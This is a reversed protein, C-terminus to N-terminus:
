QKQFEPLSLIYGVAAEVKNGPASWFASVALERHSPPVDGNLLLLLFYDIVKEPTDLGWRRRFSEPSWELRAEDADAPNAARNLFKLRELLGTTHMWDAALESEGTPDVFDFLEMGALLLDGAATTFQANTPRGELARIASTVVEFPTKVKARYLDLSLFEDSHLITRIVERQDGDTRKWMDICAQLLDPEQYELATIRGDSNADLREFVHLPRGDPLVRSIPEEWEARELAGNGDRDVADFAAQLAAPMPRTKALVSLDDTVFLQILKTSIFKATDRFTMLKDLFRDFETLAAGVTRSSENAPIALEASVPLPNGLSDTGGYRRVFLEKRSWDHAETRIVFAWTYLGDEWLQTAPFQFPPPERRNLPVPTFQPQSQFNIDGPPFGARAVWDVTWGTFVKALEEVDRQTYANDVGTSFLELIERAFNENPARVTNEFGNLYILMAVSKSCAELLDRFRGFTHRRYLAYERKEMDAAVAMQDAGRGYKWRGVHRHDLFEVLTLAGDARKERAYEEWTIASRHLSRFVAWEVETLLDDAPGVDAARFIEESAEVVPGGRPPEEFFNEALAGVQTHFHNNWFQAVVHLLQWRSEVAHVILAAKLKAKQVDMNGRARFGIDLSEVRAHLDPEHLAPDYPYPVHDIQEDIYRLLDERTQIRAYLDETPGFTIRNLVHAILPFDDPCYPSSDCGMASALPDGGCEFPGPAPLTTGGLFLFNLTAVADSLDIRRDANADAADTCSSPPSGNFLTNLTSVVDSIDTRGDVNSDGRVFQARRFFRATEGAQVGCRPMCLFFISTTALLVGAPARQQRSPDAPRRPPLIM